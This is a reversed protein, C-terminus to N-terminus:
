IKELRLKVEQLVKRYKQRPVYETSEVVRGHKYRRKLLLNKNDWYYAWGHPLGKRFTIRALLFRDRSYITCIGEKEGKVYRCISARRRPFPFYTHWRGYKNLCNDRKGRTAIQGSSAKYTTELWKSDGQRERIVGTIGSLTPCAIKVQKNNKWTIIEKLQGSDYVKQEGQHKDDKYTTSECLFGNPDFTFWVSQKGKYNKEGVIKVMGERTLTQTPPLKLNFADVPALINMKLM